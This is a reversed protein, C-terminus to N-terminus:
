LRSVPIFIDVHCRDAAEDWDVYQEITPLDIQEYESQPLFEGYIRKWTQGLVGGSITGKATFVLWNATPYSYRDFGEMDEGRYEIGCMYDNNGDGDFGFCLGLDCSHGSIERLREATGDTKVIGWTGGGYATIRRIGLVDFAEKKMTRYEMEGAGMIMFTFKLRAYFKVCASPEKAAQPSIGHMRKFAASFADASDYGYKVAIDLVRLNTHQLDYAACSLRRCRIYESIQIGTIPAFSRQFVSYPCAMIRSIQEPDIEGELNTEIYEIVQNMRDVWQM